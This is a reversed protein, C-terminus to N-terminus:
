ILEENIKPPLYMDLNLFLNPHNKKINAVVKETDIGVTRKDKSSKLQKKIENMAVVWVDHFDIPINQWITKELKLNFNEEQVKRLSKIIQLLTDMSVITHIKDNEDIAFWPEDGDWDGSQLTLLKKGPDETNEINIITKKQKDDLGIKKSIINIKDISSLKKNAM